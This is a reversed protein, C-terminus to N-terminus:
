PTVATGDPKLNMLDSADIEAVLYYGNETKASETKGEDTPATKTINNLTIKGNKDCEGVAYWKAQTTDLKGATDRLDKPPNTLLQTVAM